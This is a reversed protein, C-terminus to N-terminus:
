KAKWNDSRILKADMNIYCDSSLDKCCKLCKSHVNGHIDRNTNKTYNVVHNCLQQKMRTFFDVM